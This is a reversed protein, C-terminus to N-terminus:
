SEAITQSKSLKMIQPYIKEEIKHTSEYGRNLQHTATWTAVNLLDWYTKPPNAILYNTVEEMVNSPFMEILKSIDIPNIEINQLNPIDYEMTQISNQILDGITEELRDLNKNWISHKNNFSAFTKGITLGNSCVLRFAGALINLGVSGDYSNKIIIEPTLDDDKGINIKENPFKWSM